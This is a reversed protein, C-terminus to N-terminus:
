KKGKTAEAMAAMASKWIKWSEDPIADNEVEDLLEPEQSGNDQFRPMFDAVEFPENRKDQDRHAEAFLMSIIASRQWDDGWPELM